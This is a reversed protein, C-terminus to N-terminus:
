KKSIDWNMIKWYSQDITFDTVVGIIVDKTEQVEFDFTYTKPETIRSYGLVDPNNEINDVDPIATGNTVVLYVKTGSEGLKNGNRVLVELTYESPELLVPQYIKGNRIFPSGWSEQGMAALGENDDFGGVPPNGFTKAADNTTWYALTGWRNNAGVEGGRKSTLFPASDNGITSMPKFSAYDTYFTDLATEEPLFLTRYKYTTLPEFDGIREIGEEIPVFVTNQDNETTTYVIETGIVGTTLDMTAYNVVLSDRILEHSIVPRNFLSNQFRDGYVEASEFVAVSQNNNKDFTRIEFNYVNEPLNDIEVSVTDVGATRNVPVVVSDNKVNWYIRVETVKPDSIILGEVKVRNRGPYIKLSDIKGTYSIEGGETYKLYEEGDSCSYISLSSCIILLGFFKIYINKM